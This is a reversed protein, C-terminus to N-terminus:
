QPQVWTESTTTNGIGLQRKGNNGMAYLRGDTALLYYSQAASNQTMGIMKPTIGFPVSVETAYTRNAAAGNNIYTGSGWTYLKGDSTLAFLANSTGRTAVVDELLGGQTSGNTTTSKYVPHWVYNNSGS